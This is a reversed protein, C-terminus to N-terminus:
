GLRLNCAQGLAITHGDPASKALADLRTGGGDVPRDDAVITWGTAAAMRTGIERAVMDTGGGPPFPVILRIPRDPWAAQARALRPAALLGTAALIMRRNM